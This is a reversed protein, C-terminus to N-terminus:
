SKEPSQKPKEPVTFEAACREPPLPQNLVVDRFELEHLLVLEGEGAGGWWEVRHPWLTQADLYMTWLRPHRRPHLAVPIDKLKEPNHPWNGTLQVVEKDKWRAARQGLGQTHARLKRLLPGPGLFAGESLHWTRGAEVMEPTNHSEGLRPLDTWNPPRYDDDFRQSEWVTTGDSIVKLEGEARAVKVKLELRVRHAPAALYRGQVEHASEDDWIRQWLAMEMWTVRPASCADIARDLLAAAEANAAGSTPPAPPPTPGPPTDAGTLLLAGLGLVLIIPIPYRAM